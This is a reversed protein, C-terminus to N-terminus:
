KGPTYSKLVRLRETQVIGIHPAYWIVSRAHDPQGSLIQVAEFRGAPTELVKTEGVQRVLRSITGGQGYVTEWQDGAKVPFRLLQMPPDYPRGVQEVLFLGAPRVEVTWEPVKTGDPKLSHITVRTTDGSKEVATVVETSEGGAELQYRLTTGVKVSWYPAPPAKEKLRPAPVAPEVILVAILAALVSRSM